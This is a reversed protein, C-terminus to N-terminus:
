GQPHGSGNESQDQLIQEATLRGILPALIVGPHGVALFLNGIGPLFGFRPMGDSFVPREGVEASKLGTGEPLVLEEKMIALM